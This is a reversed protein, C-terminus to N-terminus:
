MLLVVVFEGLMGPGSYGRTIHVLSNERLAMIKYEKNRQANQQSQHKAAQRETKGITRGAFDFQNRVPLSSIIQLGRVVM